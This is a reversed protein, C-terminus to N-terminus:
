THICKRVCDILIRQNIKNGYSSMMFRWCEMIKLLNLSNGFVRNKIVTSFLIFSQLVNMQAKAYNLNYDSFDDQKIQHPICINGNLYFM